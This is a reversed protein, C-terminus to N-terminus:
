SIKELVENFTRLCAQPSFYEAHLQEANASWKKASQTMSEPSITACLEDLSAVVSGAEYTSLYEGPDVTSITPLGYSWSELFTAPFGEFESTCCLVDAAGYFRGIESRSVKGHLVINDFSTAREKFHRSYSDDINAEGVIDFRYEPYTEALEFIWHPRKNQDIRGVWLVRKVGENDEPRPDRQAEVSFTESRLDNPMRLVESSIDFENKLLAAQADTQALIRDALRLGIRYGVRERLQDLRPLSAMCDTDSGTLFVFKRGRSLWKTAIATWGTEVSAGMQVVYRSRIRRVTKLIGTARPSLFRLLPLGADVSFSRFVMIGDVDVIAPQGEDYVVLAVRKGEAALLRALTVLDTEIGGIYRPDRSGSVNGWCKLGVICIDYDFKEGVAM